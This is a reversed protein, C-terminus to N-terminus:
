PQQPRARRAPLSGRLAEDRRRVLWRADSVEASEADPKPGEGSPRPGRALTLRGARGLTLTRGFVPVGGPLISAGSRAGVAEVHEPRHVLLGLTRGSQGTGSLDYVM